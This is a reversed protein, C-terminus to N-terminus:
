FRAGELVKRLCSSSSILPVFMGVTSRRMTSEWPAGRELALELAVRRDEDTQTPPEEIAWSVRSLSRAASSARSSLAEVRLGSAVGCGGLGIRCRRVGHKSGREADEPFLVVLELGGSGHKQRVTLGPAVSQLVRESRDLAVSGAWGSGLISPRCWEVNDFAATSAKAVLPKAPIDEGRMKQSMSESTDNVVDGVSGGVDAAERVEVSAVVTDSSRGPAGLSNPLRLQLYERKIGSDINVMSTSLLALLPLAAGSISKLFIRVIVRGIGGAVCNAESLSIVPLSSLHRTFPLLKVSLHWTNGSCSLGTKVPVRGSSEDNLGCDTPGCPTRGRGVVGTRGAVRLDEATSRSWVGSVASVGM